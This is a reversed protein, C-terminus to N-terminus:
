RRARAPAACTDCLLLLKGTATEATYIRGGCGCRNCPPRLLSLLRGIM